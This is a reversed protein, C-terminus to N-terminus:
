NFNEIRLISEVKNLNESEKIKEISKNIDKELSKHTIFVLSVFDAHEVNQTVSVISVNNKGFISAIGGLVGVKDRVNLRIYFESSNEESNKIRKLGLYNKSPKDIVM